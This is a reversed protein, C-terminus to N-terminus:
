SLVHRLNLGRRVRPLVVAKGFAGWARESEALASGSFHLNGCPEVNSSIALGRFTLSSCRRSATRRPRHAWHVASKASTLDVRAPDGSAAGTLTM